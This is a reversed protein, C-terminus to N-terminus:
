QKEPEFLGMLMKHKAMDLLSLIKDSNVHNGATYLNGERTWGVLLVQNDPDLHEMGGEFLKELPIPLRTKGGWSVVNGKKM